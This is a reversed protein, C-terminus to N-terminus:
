STPAGAPATPAFDSSFMLQELLWREKFNRLVFLFKGRDRQPTGGEPAMTLRYDGSAYALTGSGAIDRPELTLDSAGLKFRNVYYERVNENGRVASANPPLVVAPGTFLQSVKVADKANYVSTFEEILKNIETQDAQDFEPGAAPQTCAALLSVIAIAGFVSLPRM